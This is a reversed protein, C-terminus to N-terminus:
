TCMGKKRKEERKKKKIGVIKLTDGLSVKTLKANGSIKTKCLM